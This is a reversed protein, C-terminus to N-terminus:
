VPFCGSLGGGAGAKPSSGGSGGGGGAHESGGEGFASANAPPKLYVLVYRTGVVKKSVLYRHESSCITRLASEDVAMVSSGPFRRERGPNLGIFNQMATLVKMVEKKRTVLQLYPTSAPVFTASASVPTRGSGPEGAQSQEGGAPPLPPAPNSTFGLQQRAKDVVTILEATVQAFPKDVDINNFNPNCSYLNLFPQEVFMYDHIASLLCQPNLDEVRRNEIRMGARGLLKGIDEMDLLVTLDVKLGHRRCTEDVIVSGEPTKVYEIVLGARQTDKVRKVYEELLNNTVSSFHRSGLHSDLISDTRRLERLKEPISLFDFGFHACLAQGQTTKGSGPPGLLVVVFPPRTPPSPTTRRPVFSTANPNFTFKSEKNGTATPTPSSGSTSATISPPLSDSPASSDAFAAAAAAASTSAPLQENIVRLTNEEM